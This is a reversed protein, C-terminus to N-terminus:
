RKRSKEKPLLAIVSDRMTKLREFVARDGGVDPHHQKALRRFADNIDQTTATKPDLKFVHWPRFNKLVDIGNIVSGGSKLNKEDRPIGVYERYIKRWSGQSKPDFTDGTIAMRFLKNKMLGATTREGWNNLVAKRIETMTMPKAATEPGGAAAAKGQDGSSKPVAGGPGQSSSQGAAPLALLGSLRQVKAPNGKVRCQKGQQICTSGCSFGKVCRKPADMRDVVELYGDLRPGKMGYFGELWAKSAVAWAAESFSDESADERELGQGAAIPGYSISEGKIRYDFLATGSRFRGSVAGDGRDPNVQLLKVPQIFDSLLDVVADALDLKM